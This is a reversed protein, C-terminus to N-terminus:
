RVNACEYWVLLFFFMVVNIVDFFCVSSPLCISIATRFQSYLQERINKQIYDLKLVLFLFWVPYGVGVYIIIICYAKGEKLEM